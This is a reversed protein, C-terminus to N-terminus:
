RPPGSTPARGASPPTPPSRATSRRTSRRRSTTASHPSGRRRSALGAGRVVTGALRVSLSRPRLAARLPRRGGLLRRQARRRTGRDARAGHLVAHRDRDDHWALPRGVQGHRLRDPDAERRTRGDHHAPVSQFMINAPKLDRHVIGLAHAVKLGDAIALSIAISEDITYRGGAQIRERMREHLTGRDALDMVFYPRGDPLQDVNHIRVIHDSDARWLIRAEELFRERVEDDHAWNEALVKIAVPAALTEDEALWVTAFAGSGIVRDARYRGIYQPGPGALLGIRRWRQPSHLRPRLIPAQLRELDDSGRSRDGGLRALRERHPPVGARPQADVVREDRALVQPQAGLDAAPDDLVGARAVAGVDVSFPELAEPDLRLRGDAEAIGLLPGPQPQRRERGGDGSLRSVDIWGRGHRGDGARALREQGGGGVTPGVPPARGPSSVTRWSSPEPTAVIPRLGDLSM